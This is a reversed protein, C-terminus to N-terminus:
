NLRKTGTVGLVELSPPDGKGSVRVIAKKSWVWEIPSAVPSRLVKDTKLNNPVATVLLILPEIDAILLM